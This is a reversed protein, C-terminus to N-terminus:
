PSRIVGISNMSQSAHSAESQAPTQSSAAWILYTFFVSVRNRPRFADCGVGAMVVDPKTQVVQLVKLDSRADISRIDFRSDRSDETM